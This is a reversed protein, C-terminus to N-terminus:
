VRVLRNSSEKLVLNLVHEAWRYLRNAPASGMYEVELQGVKERKVKGGRDAVPILNTGSVLREKALEVTANKVADPTGTLYRGSRDYANIRPWELAQSDSQIVGPFRDRFYADIYQTAQRLAAEKNATTAGNWTTLDDGIFHNTAYTDASAVDTYSDTGVTLAM